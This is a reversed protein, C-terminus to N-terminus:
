EGFPHFPKCVVACFRNAYKEIISCLIFRLSFDLPKFVCTFQESWDPFETSSQYFMLVAPVSNAIIKFSHPMKWFDVLGFM